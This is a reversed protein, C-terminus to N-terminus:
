TKIQQYTRLKGTNRSMKRSPNSFEGNTPTADSTLYAFETEYENGWVDGYRVKGLVFFNLAGRSDLVKRAEDTFREPAIGVTVSDHGGLAPWIASSSYTPSVM